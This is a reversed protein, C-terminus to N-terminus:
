TKGILFTTFEKKSSRTSSITGRKKELIWPTLLMFGGSQHHFKGDVVVKREHSLFGGSKALNKASYALRSSFAFQCPIQCAPGV